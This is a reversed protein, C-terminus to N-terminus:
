LPVEPSTPGSEAEPLPARADASDTHLATLRNIREELREAALAIEPETALIEPMRKLAHLV